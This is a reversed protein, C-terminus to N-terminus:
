SKSAEMRLPFGLLPELTIGREFRENSQSHTPLSSRNLFEVFDNNSFLLLSESIECRTIRILDRHGSPAFSLRVFLNDNPFVFNLIYLSSPTVQIYAPTLEVSISVIFMRRNTPSCCTHRTHRPM